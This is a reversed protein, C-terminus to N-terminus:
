DTFLVQAVCALEIPSFDRRQCHRRYWVTKLVSRRASKAAQAGHGAGGGGALFAIDFKGAQHHTRATESQRKLRRVAAAGWIAPGVQPAVRELTVGCGSGIKRHLRLVGQRM